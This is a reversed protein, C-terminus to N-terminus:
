NSKRSHIALDCISDKFQKLSSQWKSDSIDIVESCARCAISNKDVLQGLLQLDKYGCSPCPLEVRFYHWDTIVM